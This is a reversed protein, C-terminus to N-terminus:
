AKRRMTLTALGLAALVGALAMFGKIGNEGTFPLDFGGNDEVNEITLDQSANANTVSFAVPNPRLEYGEPAKTEVLCYDYEDAVTGGNQFDEVQIGQISIKGEGDTTWSSKGNVTLPGDILEAKETGASGQNCRYLEFTAGALPAQTKEGVKNVNVKGFRSEVEDKPDNEDPNDPDGFGNDVYLYATNTQVNVDNGVTLEGVKAKVKAVVQVQSNDKRADELKKLGSSALSIKTDGPKGGETVSFDGADLKTEGISVEVSDRDVTINEPQRDVLVYREYGSKGQPVAVTDGTLTYEITSGALAHKDSVTKEVGFEQNKPHVHVDYNWTAKDPNTMPLAVLFPAINSRGQKPTETVLYFGIDKTLEAKGGTTTVTDAAGLKYDGISTDGQNYGALDIKSFKQWDNFDKPNLGEIRQVNFEADFADRDVDKATGDAKQGTPDGKFKNITLKATTKNSDILSQITSRDINDTVTVGNGAGQAHAVDMTTSMMPAAFACSLLLAASIKKPASM